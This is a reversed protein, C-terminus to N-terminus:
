PCCTLEQGPNEQEWTLPHLGCSRHRHAETPSHSHRYSLGRQSKAVGHVETQWAGRGCFEGSLVGPTPLRERRWPDDWVPILGPDGANCALEKGRLRWPFKQPSLVWCKGDPNLQRLPGQEEARKQAMLASPCSRADLVLSSFCAQVKPAWRM